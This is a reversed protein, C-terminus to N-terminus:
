FKWIVAKNFFNNQITEIAIERSFNHSVPPRDYRLCILYNLSLNFIKWKSELNCSLRNMGPCYHLTFRFLIVNISRFILKLTVKYVAKRVEFRKFKLFHIFLRFIVWIAYCLMSSMIFKAIFLGLLYRPKFDKM